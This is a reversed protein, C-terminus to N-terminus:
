EERWLVSYMTLYCTSTSQNDGWIRMKLQSGTNMFTHVSDETIEEWNTGGDASMEIKSINGVANLRVEGQTITTGTEANVLVTELKKKRIVRINDLWFYWDPEDSSTHQESMVWKITHVGSYGSVDIVVDNVISDYDEGPHDPNWSKGHSWLEVGDIYFYMYIHGGIGSSFVDAFLRADFKLTDVDTLDVDQSIELTRGGYLYTGTTVKFSYLGDTKWDTAAGYGSMGNNVVTWGSTDGTEFSHNQVAHEGTIDYIKNNVDYSGTSNASDIMSEDEFFDILASNLTTSILEDEVEEAFSEKAEELASYWQQMRIEQQQREIEKLKTIIDSIDRELEVDCLGDDLNFMVSTITYTEGVGDGDEDVVVSLGPKLNLNIFTRITYKVSEIKYKELLSRAYENLTDFDLGELIVPEAEKVGYLNQSTTDNEEVFLPVGFQPEGGWVHVRNKLEYIDINKKSGELINGFKPSFTIGSSMSGKEEIYIKGDADVRWYYDGLLECVTNLAKHRPIAKFDVTIAPYSSALASKDVWSFASLIDDIITRADTSSFSVRIIRESFEYTKEKAKVRKIETFLDEDIEKVYGRFILEDNYYLELEDDINIEDTTIFELESFKNISRTFRVSSATIESSDSSRVLKYKMLDNIELAQVM